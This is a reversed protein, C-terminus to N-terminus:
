PGPSAAVATTVVDNVKQRVEATGTGDLHKLNGSDGGDGLVYFAVGPYRAADKRAAAAPLEGAAFVLNCRGEALGALFASANEATQPDTVSLYQVKARTAVSADQMGAWVPAADPAQLGRPGTLLCATFELYERARPPPPSPDPWLLWTVGAAGVLAAVAGLILSRKGPLRRAPLPAKRTKPNVNM